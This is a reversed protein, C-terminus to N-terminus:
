LIEELVIPLRPFLAPEFREPAVARRTTVCAESELRPEEGPRGDPDVIRYWPVGFRAYLPRKRLLDRGRTAASLIEGVLLPPGDVHGEPQRELDDAAIVLLDPQCVTREHLRVDLPAVYLVGRRHTDLWPRLRM